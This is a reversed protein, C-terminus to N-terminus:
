RFNKLSFAKCGVVECQILSSSVNFEGPFALSSGCSYSISPPPVKFCLQCGASFIDAGANCGACLKYEDGGGCNPLPGGSSISPGGSVGPALCAGICVEVNIERKKRPPMMQRDCCEDWGVGFSVKVGGFCVGINAGFDQTWLGKPDIYRIPNNEAYLYSDPTNPLLCPSKQLSSSFDYLDIRSAPDDRNYRGTEFDYFRNFNYHLNSESDYYHGAFRFNNAITAMEVYAKGFSSFFSNWVIDGNTKVIYQPTGIHDNIYLFKEETNRIIIPATGWFYGPSYEYYFANDLLSDFEGVLGEDTYYYYRIYDSTQKWLRRGFPDYYYDAIGSSEESDIHCLRNEFNYSYGVIKGNNSKSILNGNQDYNMVVNGFEILENNTNYIYEGDVNIATKRNGVEDYTYAEDAITPNDVSTLRNLQDYAYLYSGNKTNKLIINNMQDYYYRNEMINNGAQDISVVSQIRMLPDYSYYRTSGGPYIILTPKNWQVSSISVPGLGPFQIHLLQNNADYAYTNTNADPGTFSQKLGNRYYSYGHSLQFPGYDVTEVTKRHLSDYIYQGSTTGDDYSTLNGLDDHTFAVTKVPTTDGAIQFYQVEVLRNAEDYINNTQQNKADIKTILNGAGDYAYQTEEGMPRIEKVLRNNHDYEFHTTNGNADQLAILNNRDDFTYNTDNSLADTVRVQRGVLDFSYSTPNGMKDTLHILNGVADYEFSTTYVTSEDLVDREGIKWGRSNYEFAKSFTPYIIRIPQNIGGGSCSACGMVGTDDYEFVTENDNGDITKSKRGFTDYENRVVIKGEPDIQRILQNNDNYAYIAIVNASPDNPDAIATSQILNNHLDYEYQLELGEADIEKVKNGYADYEYRTAHTLPDIAERLQGKSDYVYEWTNGRPDEMTRLNGMIDYAYNTTHSEADTKSLMNGAVDYTMQTVAEATNADGVLRELVLNGDADYEWETIREDSTDVAEVMRTRNGNTDYKYETIIGREDTKRVVQHHSLDYEYTVRAGDPYVVQLLNDWEDYSKRTVNGAADYVLLDRGQKEIRQITIGNIDM